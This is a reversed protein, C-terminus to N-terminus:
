PHRRSRPQTPLLQELQIFFLIDAVSEKWASYERRLCQRGPLLKSWKEMVADSYWAAQTSPVLDLDANWKMVKTSFEQSSSTFDTGLQRRHPERLLLVTLLGAIVVLLATNMIWSYAKITSLIGRPEGWKRAPPEDHWEKEHGSEVDTESLCEENGNDEAKWIMEYKSTKPDM